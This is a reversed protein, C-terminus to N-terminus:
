FSVPVLPLVPETSGPPYIRLLIQGNGFQKRCAELFPSLGFRLEETTLAECEDGDANHSLFLEAQPPNSKLFAPLGYLKFEHEKCGGSYLVNLYLIGDHVTISDKISLPDNHLYLSDVDNYMIIEDVKDIVIRAVYEEPKVWVGSKPLPSLSRLAIMYGEYFVQRPDLLTNLVIETQNVDLIIKANGAWFCLFGEPCRSDELVSKFTLKLEIDQIAIQQGFSISFEEGLKPGKQWVVNIEVSGTGNGVANMHVFALVTQNEIITIAISGTYRLHGSSDKADITLQWEGAPIDNMVIRVTDIFNQLMATSTVPDYGSRKLQVELIGVESPISNKALNFAINGTKGIGNISASDTGIDSCSFLFVATIIALWFKKRNM